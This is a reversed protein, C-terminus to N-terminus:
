RDRGSTGCSPMEDGFRVSMFLGLHGLASPALSGPTPHGEIGSGRLPSVVGHISRGSLVSSHSLVQNNAGEPPRNEERWLGLNRRAKVAHASVAGRVLRRETM